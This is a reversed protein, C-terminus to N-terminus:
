FIAMSTPGSGAAQSISPTTANKLPYPLSATSDLIYSQISDSGQNTVYLNSGFTSGFKTVIGRPNTGAAITGTNLSASPALQGGAGITFQAVKGDATTVFVSSDNATIGVPGAGISSVTAPSLATLAGATCAPVDGVQCIKFQSISNDGKNTVYLYKGSPDVVAYYPDAGVAFNNLTTGGAGMAGLASLGNGTISFQSVTNENGNVVYAFLSNPHIAIGRPGSGITAPTALPQPAGTGTVYYPITTIASLQGGTPGGVISYGYVIGNQNDTVYASMGSPTIALAYPVGGVATSGVNSVPAILAKVSVSYNNVKANGKDLVFANMGNALIAVSTPQNFNVGGGTTGLSGSIVTAGLTPTGDAAFTYQTVTNNGENTVFMYSDAPNTLTCNAYAYNITATTVTGSGNYMTCTRPTSIVPQTTIAVSWPTGVKVYKNFAATGGTATSTMTITECVANNCATTGGYNEGATGTLTVGAQTTFTGGAAYNNFPISVAVEYPTCTVTIAPNGNTITGSISGDGNVTAGTASLVCTNHMPNKGSPDVINNWTTATITGSATTTVSKNASAGWPVQLSATYTTGTAHTYPAVPATYPGAYAYTAFTVPVQNYAGNTPAPSVLCNPLGTIVAASSAFTGNASTASPATTGASGCTGGVSVSYLNAGNFVQTNNVAFVRTGASDAIWPGPAALTFTGNGTLQQTYTNPGDNTTVSLLIPSNAPLGAVTGGVSYTTTTCYYVVNSANQNGAGANGSIGPPNGSALTYTTGNFNYLTCSVGYPQASTTVTFATLTPSKFHIQDPFNWAICKGAPSGTNIPDACTTAGLGTGTIESVSNCVGVTTTGQCVDNSGPTYALNISLGMGAAPLSALPDALIVTGGVTYSNITCSVVVNTVNGAPINGSPNSLLCTQGQPQPGQVAVVYATGNAYAGSAPLTFSVNSGTGTVQVTDAGIGSALTLTNGSSLGTVSGSITGNDCSITINSVNSSGVTGSGNTVLCTQGSPQTGVTVSYAGGTPSVSAMNYPGNTSITTADGLNNLLTVSGTLGTITGGVNFNNTSCTVTVTIDTAVITGTTQGSAQCIPVGGGAPSPQHAIVVTYATGTVLTGLTYSGDTTFPQTVGTNLKLGVSYGTGTMGTINAKVNFSLPNCTVNATAAGVVSLPSGAVSCSYGARTATLILTDGDHASVTYSGGNTTVTNGTSATSGSATVTAGSTTGSITYTNSTCTVNVTVAAAAIIGSGNDVACFQGIPQTSITVAYTEGTKVATFSNNGNTTVSLSEVRTPDITLLSTITKTLGLIKGSGLGSVNATIAYASRNCNLRITDIDIPASFSLSGSADSLTCNLGIDQSTIYVAYIQPNGQSDYLPVSSPFSFTGNGFGTTGSLTLTKTDTLGDSGYKTLKITGKLDTYSGGITYSNPTCAVSVNTVNSGVIIGSGNSVLCTQGIPQTKVNVLYTNGLLVPNAFTFLGNASIPLPDGGNMRLTMSGVLGSVSGGVTFSPLSACSVLINSINTDTVTGSGNLVQCVQGIPQTGVSVSYAHGFLVPNSFTFVGNSNVTLTDVSIDGALSSLGSSVGSVSSSFSSGVSSSSSSSYGSGSSVTNVLTLSGILGSINGGVTYSIQSCSVSVNIVNAGAIVGTGNTVDCTVGTPQSGVTVTYSQGYLLSSNFGFTIEGSAVPLNEDGNLQLVLGSSTLGSISGGVTYTTCAVSVNTVNSTVVTGSGNFVFCSQGSPITGTTVFYSTGSPLQSTFTFNGNATVLLSNGGNNKLVISKGVGLGTVTGGISYTNISCTVTVNSINSSGITGTDNALSCTLGIPQQQITVAYPTGTILATAFSFASSGSPVIKNAGGNLKLILGSTTLGFISGSVTYTKNCAIAVNTVNAATIVGVGNSVACSMGVPQIGVSVSYPSNGTLVTAFKFTSAGNAIILSTGNLRLVLGAATLGSISGSVTYTSSCLVSVNSVTGSVSGAGNAVLCTQGAPQIIVNVSYGTGAPLPSSFSFGSNASLILTDNGNNSLVVSKGPALGSLTGGITYLNNCAISVNSITAGSVVGTGNSVACLQGAPQTAISVSYNTGSPLDTPFYFDGNSSITFTDGGNNQLTLSKGSGLGTVTGGIFYTNPICTVTVNTINATTVSGIANAIFCTEDSPQTGIGVQYSAGSSLTTPFTFAGNASLSIADSSNNLLTVSQGGALGSVTGGISYTGQQLPATNITGSYAGGASGNIVGRVQLVYTGAALNQTPLACFGSFDSGCTLSLSLPGFTIRNTVSSGDTAPNELTGSWSYLRANLNTIQSATGLDITIASASVIGNTVTFLYDDYFDFSTSPILSTNASFTQGFTYSAPVSLVTPTTNNGGTQGASTAEYNLAINASSATQALAMGLLFLLGYVWRLPKIM